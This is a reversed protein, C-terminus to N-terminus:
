KTRILRQTESDWRWLNETTLHVGGLWKDIGNIEIWDRENALVKEGVYAILISQDNFEDSSACFSPLRFPRGNSVKLTESETMRALYLWFLSDGMFRSEESAQAAAFIEGPKAIGAQIAKLIAEETRNLGNRLSPYQELHRVVSAGLFPLSATDMGILDEWRKPDRSCFASWAKGGLELDELLVIRRRPYVAALSEPQMTGLYDGHSIMSLATEDLDQRAFWDLIQLLQLQDYLDHEFWLIVEQHKRFSALKSDRARFDARAKELTQWSCDAIFQARIESMQELSLGAPVPGEHLVDRWPLVEGGIAAKEIVTAAVDGNTIHLTM